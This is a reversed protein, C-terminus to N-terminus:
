LEEAERILLSLKLDLAVSLACLAEWSPYRLDNEIYSVHSSHVGTREGLQEQTLHCEKRRQRIAAGLGPIRTKGRPKAQAAM